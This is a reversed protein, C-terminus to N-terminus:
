YQGTWPAGQTLEGTLFGYVLVFIIMVALSVRLTLLKVMRNSGPKNKFLAVLEGSLSLLMAIILVVMIIKLWM